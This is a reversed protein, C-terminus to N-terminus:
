QDPAADELASAVGQSTFPLLPHGSDGVLVVKVKLPIPEPELSVTTTLSMLAEEEGQKPCVRRALSLRTAAM